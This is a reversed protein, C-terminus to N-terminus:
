VEGHVRRLFTHVLLSFLHLPCSPWASLVSPKRVRGMAPLLLWSSAGQVTLQRGQDSCLLSVWASLDINKPSTPTKCLGTPDFVGWPCQRGKKLSPNAPLRSAATFMIETKWESDLKGWGRLVRGARGSEREMEEWPHRRWPVRGCVTRNYETCGMGGWGGFSCSSGLLRSADPGQFGQKAEHM